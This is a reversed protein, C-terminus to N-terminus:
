TRVTVPIRRRSLIMKKPIGHIHRFRRDDEDMCVEGAVIVNRRNEKIFYGVTTMVVDEIIDEPAYIGPNNWADSWVIVEVIVKIPRRQDIASSM